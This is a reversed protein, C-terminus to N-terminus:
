SAKSSMIKKVYCDCVSQLLSQLHPGDDGDCKDRARKLSREVLLKYLSIQMIAHKKWGYEPSNFIGPTALKKYM